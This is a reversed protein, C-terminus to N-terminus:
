EIDDLEDLEESYEEEDWKMGRIQRTLSRSRRAKRKREKARQLNIVPNPAEKRLTKKRKTSRRHGGKSM